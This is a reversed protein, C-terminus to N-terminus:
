AKRYTRQTGAFYLEKGGHRLTVRWYSAGQGSRDSLDFTTADRPTAKGTWLRQGFAVWEGSGDPQFQFYNNQADQTWKGALARLWTRADAARVHPTAPASTTPLDISGPVTSGPVPSVPGSMAPRRSRQSEQSPGAYSEQGGGHRDALATVALVGVAAVALLISITRTVAPPVSPSRM